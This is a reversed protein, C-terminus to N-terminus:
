TVVHFLLDLIVVWTGKCFQKCFVNFILKHYYSVYQIILCCALPHNRKTTTYTNYQHLSASCFIILSKQCFPFTQKKPDDDFKISDYKTAFNLYNWCKWKGFLLKCDIELSYATALPSIYRWVNYIFSANISTVPRYEIAYISLLIKKWQKRESCFQQKKYEM